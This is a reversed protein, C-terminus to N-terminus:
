ASKPQPQLTKKFRKKWVFFYGMLITFYTTLFVLPLSIGQIGYSNDPLLLLFTEEPFVLGLWHLSMFIPLLYSIGHSAYRLAIYTNFDEDIDNDTVRYFADRSKWDSILAINQQKKKKARFISSFDREKEEVRLLHRLLLSLIATLFAVVMVQSIVPLHLFNLPKIILLELVQGLFSFLPYIFSLYLTDFFSCFIEIIKGLNIEM